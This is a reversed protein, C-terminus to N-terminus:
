ESKVHQYEKLIETHKNKWESVQRKLESENNRSHEYQSEVRQLKATVEAINTCADSLDRDQCFFHM